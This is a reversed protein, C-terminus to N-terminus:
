GSWLLIVWWNGFTWDCHLWWQTWFIQSSIAEGVSTTVSCLATFEIDTHRRGVEDSCAWCCDFAILCGFWHSSFTREGRLYETTGDLVLNLLQDYGKLVGSATFLLPVVVVACLHSPVGFVFALFSHGAHCLGYARKPFSPCDAHHRVEWEPLMAVLVCWAIGSRILQLVRIKAEVFDIFNVIKWKSLIAQHFVRLM